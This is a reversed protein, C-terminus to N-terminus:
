KKIHNNSFDKIVKTWDSDLPIARKGAQWKNFTTESMFSGDTQDAYKSLVKYMSVRSNSNYEIDGKERAVRLANHMMDNWKELNGRISHPAGKKWVMESDEGDDPQSKTACKRRRRSELLAESKKVQVAFLRGDEIYDNYRRHITSPIDSFDQKVTSVEHKESRFTGELSQNSTFIRADLAKEAVNIIHESWLASSSLWETMVYRAATPSYLPNRLKGSTHPLTVDVFFGGTRRPSIYETGDEDRSYCYYLLCIKVKGTKAVSDASELYAVGFNIDEKLRDIVPRAHLHGNFAIRKGETAGDLENKICFEMEEDTRILLKKVEERAIADMRAAEKESLESDHHLSTKSKLDFQSCQLYETEFLAVFISLHVILKSISGITTMEDAILKFIQDYAASHVRFEIPKEKKHKRYNAVANYVHSKCHKFICPSLQLVRNYLIRSASRMDYEDAAHVLLYDHRRLIYIVVNNYLQGTSVHHSSRYGILFGNALQMACDTKVVSPIPDIGDGAGPRSETAIMTDKRFHYVWNAVNHTKNNPSIREALFLPHYLNNGFEEADNRTLVCESAQMTMVTHQIKSDFSSNPVNLLNGTADVGVVLRKESALRAAVLLMNRGHLYINFVPFLECRRTIGPLVTCQDGNAKRMELDKKMTIEAASIINEYNPVNPLIGKGKKEERRAEATLNYITKVSTIEGNSNNCSLKTPCIKGIFHKTM